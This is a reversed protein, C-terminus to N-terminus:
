RKRYRATLRVLSAPTVFRHRANGGDSWSVFRYAAGDSGTQRFAELDLAYGAWSFVRAPGTFESGNARIRLGAPETALTVRVRRPRVPVELRALNGASDRAVVTFILYSNAAAALDEPAPATFEISDGNSRPWFPHDHQDHRLVATWSLASAPLVGDEPDTARALLAVKQGVSFRFSADPALLEIAPARDGVRITRSVEASVSGRDQVRLTAQYSGNSTYVHDTIPENLFAEPSGDGFIWRYLLPDGDADSSSRADFAVRLPALGATPNAVFAAQPRRNGNVNRIRRVEGGQAYTTYYLATAGQSGLFRLATPGAGGLDSAFLEGVPGAPSSRLLYIRSCVFDAFFYLGESSTPWQGLPAFDGGTISACGEARSYFYLPDTLAPPPAPCNTSSGNLCGGERLNWGYDAGAELEDIEEWTGQGVDNVFIRTQPSNGDLAIRFPNRLGWAYTEQCTTGPAGNGRDCRVSSAGLFPNDLPIDGTRTVRLIKGVLTNRDRAADNAGACGSDGRYDCGGDGVSVYLMGDKGILVDGGNHNGAFSPINDVLVTESSPDFKAGDWRFRSVRNVPASANGSGCSSGKRFTYYLYVFGNAAFDPDLAIGLLGRESNACTVARLDLVVRPTPGTFFSSVLWLRGDQSAVLLREDPLQTIATPAPVAAV